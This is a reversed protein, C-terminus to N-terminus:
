SRSRWPHDRCRQVHRGLTCSFMLAGVDDGPWPVGAVRIADSQWPPDNWGQEMRLKCLEEFAGLTFDAEAWIPLNFRWSKLEGIIRAGSYKPEHRWRTGRARNM